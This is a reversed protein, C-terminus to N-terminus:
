GWMLKIVGGIIISILILLLLLVVYTIAKIEFVKEEIRNNIKREFEDMQKENVVNEIAIKKISDLKRNIKELETSQNM